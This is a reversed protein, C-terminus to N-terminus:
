GSAGIPRSTIRIVAIRRSKLLILMLHFAVMVTQVRQM